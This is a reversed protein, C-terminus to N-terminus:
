LDHLRAMVVEKDCIPLYDSCYLGQDFLFHTLVNVVTANLGEQTWPKSIYADIKADNIAKITDDHSAQGTLMIKKTKNFRVDHHLTTLLSLGTKEPMRHDSIVLGVVEGRADLSEMLELVEDASECCEIEFYDVLPKLDRVLANLVEHQDDVCIIFPKM